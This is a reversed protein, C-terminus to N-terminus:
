GSDRDFLAEWEPARVASSPTITSLNSGFVAQHGPLLVGLLIIVSVLRMLFTRM